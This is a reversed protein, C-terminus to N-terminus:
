SIAILLLEESTTYSLGDDTKAVYLPLELYPCRLGLVYLVSNCIFIIYDKNQFEYPLGSMVTRLGACASDLSAEM